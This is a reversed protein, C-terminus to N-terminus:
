EFITQENDSNISSISRHRIIIINWMHSESWSFMFRSFIWCLTALRLWRTSHDSNSNVRVTQLVYKISLFLPTISNRFLQFNHSIKRSRNCGIRLRVCGRRDVSVLQFRHILKTSYYFQLDNSRSTGRQEPYDGESRKEYVCRYTWDFLMCDVANNKRFYDLSRNFSNIHM